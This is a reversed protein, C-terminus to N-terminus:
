RGDTKQSREANYPVIVAERQANVFRNLRGESVGFAAALEPGRLAELVSSSGALFQPHNHQASTTFGFFELPEHNSAIQCFPFYRPVWFVRGPRLNAKMALTGNPFVIQISGSGRLVVGYETATPNVHPALMSGAKLNVLYVGIGSNQLPSYDSQDVSLSSGYSNTFDPRTEYLNFSEQSHEHHSHKRKENEITGLMSNLLKRWSWTQTKEQEQPTDVMTKLKLLKDEKKMEVFKKWLHSSPHSNSLSVIPGQHQRTLVQRLESSSVNFASTLIESDFGALVSKPYTGGGIFFNELNGMRLSDSTDISLILELRQGEGVNQLYFTSGSPIRYIDGARLQREGLEHHRVLGVNAQGTQVFVIISSDLYQPIFLSNSEMSLFGLNIHRHVMRRGVSRVVRMEGAETRLLVRSRQLLFWNHHGRHGAELEEEGQDRGWDEDEHDFSMAMAMVGFCMVHVFVQLSAMVRKGM